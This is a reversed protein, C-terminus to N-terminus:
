YTDDERISNGGKGKEMVHAGLRFRGIYVKIDKIEGLARM